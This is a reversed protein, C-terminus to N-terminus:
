NTFGRIKIREVDDWQSSDSIVVQDGEELGGLIEVTQVSMQGLKVQTRIAFGDPGVKFLGVTSYAQGYAPRAVYLTEEIRDIEIVGDVSLDPRAGKPLEETDLAVDVQVSGQQVAPDIRIVHGPIVGNRTDISAVQGIQIDKAQTEAIRLEAKLKDPQAVRALNTGSTVRQGEEVPVEQLVGRIGARVSLKDLQRKRLEYVARAQEVQADEAAMQAEMSEATKELRQQEIDHRVTMQEATLESKRRTIDPVLGEKNLTLDAEAQLKASKWDAEVNALNAQQNLLESSLRVELDKLEAEARKLALEADAVSQELEPNTLELIVTEPEVIAGPDIVVTEVQGNTEASIWRIEEPVLTGPGRVSRLFEGRKVADIYVSAMDVERAAPELQALGWTISAVAALAVAGLILRNRQKKKKIEPSRQVDM